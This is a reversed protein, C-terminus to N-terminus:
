IDDMARVEDVGKRMAQVAEDATDFCHPTSVLPCIHPRGDKWYSIWGAFKGEGDPGVAECEIGDNYKIMLATMRTMMKDGRKM